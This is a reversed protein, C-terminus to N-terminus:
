RPWSCHCFQFPLKVNTPLLARLKPTPGTLRPPLTITVTALGPRGNVTPPAIDSPPLPYPTVLAPGPVKIRDPFLVKLPGTLTVAPVTIACADVIAGVVSPVPVTLIDLLVVRTSYPPCSLPNPPLPVPQVTLVRFTLVAAIVFLTSM